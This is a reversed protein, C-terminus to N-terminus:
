FQQRLWFITVVIGSIKTLRSSQFKVTITTQYISGFARARGKQSTDRLSPRGGIRVYASETKALQFNFSGVPYDKKKNLALINPLRTLHM